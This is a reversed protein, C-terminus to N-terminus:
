FKVKVSDASISDVKMTASDLDQTMSDVMASDVATSDAAEGKGSFMSCSNFAMSMGMVMMAIVFLKKM